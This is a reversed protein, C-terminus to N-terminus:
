DLIAKIGPLTKGELYELMAGGGTSIYSIKDAFGSKKIASVSDGGGVAAFAGKDTAEAIYKAISNTGGAFNEFEFVGVPGNWLITKSDLIVKGFLERTKEGADMGELEDPINVEPCYKINCDNSFADGALIDVPLYLNVNQKKAEEQLDLAVQIKDDECISKGINKGNAKAFTYSMGGGIILNDVLPLLNKIVDIKSSIKSGGIIATFPKTPANMLKTLNVIEHEMLLGFYKDNPFFQAITATSSHERHAAGFADNVYCDGLSALKKALEIDGKTEEPYFRINEIMMVEGQKLNDALEKIDNFDLSQTFAVKQGLLESLYDVVPKLSLEPEFGGKKPRGFHAMLIISAGDSMLKKITPMAEQIRTDDTIKKNEDVPVNFDVRVLVKKGAFNVSSIGKM